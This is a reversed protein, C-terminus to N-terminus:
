DSWSHGLHWGKCFHCKYPMVTKDLDPIRRRVLKLKRLAESENGFREKSKCMRYARSGSKNKKKMNVYGM